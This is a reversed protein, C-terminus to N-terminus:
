RLRLTQGPHILDPSGTGIRTANLDWLRHVETAIDAASAGARLQEGAISWLTEGSAVVHTSLHTAHSRGRASASRSTRNQHGTTAPMPRLAPADTVSPPTEPRARASARSDTAAGREGATKHTAHGDAAVLPESGPPTSSGWSGEGPRTPASDPVTRPPAPTAQPAPSEIQGTVEGPTAPSDARLEDPDISDPASPDEVSGTGDDGVAGPADADAEVTDDGGPDVAVADPETAADDDADPVGELEQDPAAIPARPAAAASAVPTTMLALVALGAGATRAAPRQASVDGLARERRCLSCSRHFALGHHDPGALHSALDNAM